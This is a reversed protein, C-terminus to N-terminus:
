KDAQPYTFDLGEQEAKPEDAKQFEDLILQDIKETASFAQPSTLVDFSKAKTHKCVWGVMQNLGAEDDMGRIAVYERLKNMLRDKEEYSAIKVKAELPKSYTQPQQNNAKDQGSIGNADDDNESAIGLIASLSYRRGYTIASGVTQANFKGFSEAPLVLTDGFFYQGSEHLIMTTIKVAKNEIDTDAFQHQSLGNKALAPAVTKIIADLDAYKLAKGGKKFADNEVSKKPSEVEGQFKVLAAAIKDIEESTRM